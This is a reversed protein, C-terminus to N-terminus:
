VNQMADYCVKTLRTIVEEIRTIANVENRNEAILSRVIAGAEKLAVQVEISDNQNKTKGSTSTQSTQKQTEESATEQKKIGVIVGDQIKVEIENKAKIAEHGQLNKAIKPWVESGEIKIATKDKRVAVIKVKKIEVSSDSSSTTEEPKTSPTQKTTEGKVKRLFVVEKEGSDNTEVAIEVSDGTNIPYKEFNSKEVVNDALFIGNEDGDCKIMNRKASFWVVTKVPNSKKAPRGRKADAM